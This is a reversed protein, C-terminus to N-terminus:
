MKFSSSLYVRDAFSDSKSRAWTRYSSRRSPRRPDPFALLNTDSQSAHVSSASLRQQAAFERLVGRLRDKEVDSCFAADVASLNAEFLDQRTLNMKALAIRYQWALSTHFVAPDDSSLSFRIGAERMRVAPHKTWDKNSTVWGGTEFSSTPCVEVHAGSDRVFRVLEDDQLMRYGHGVRAAGYETIARRVNEAALDTSEGAHMTVPVDLRKARQIMDYHPQFLRPFNASDFHEEGAAIDIGV